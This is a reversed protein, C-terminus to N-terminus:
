DTPPPDAAPIVPLLIHSPYRADHFIRQKAPVYGTESENHGGTNLNRSYTPFAASAVEVRLRHKEPITIATHRLDLHYEYVEGRVLPEPKSMSNRFRARIKGQTLVTLKGESDVEILRVFWDTDAASSEAYLVASIPGAFTYPERFRSSEYVLIDRRSRTVKAHYGERAEKLEETSRGGTGDTGSEEDGPFVTPDPTPTGPDYTYTDPRAKKPPAARTLWGDGRSTNARGRSSLYWAEYRTERLPYADGRMWRNSGMVFVNVPPENPVGNEVGKLWHDLWRLQARQLDIVAEPGFDRDGYRRSGAGAYGWPGLILRQHPHGHSAMRLYNLKTGMGDMDFWGSQHFVPINVDKMRDLVSARKWYDDDTPHAIWDRWSRNKKGLVTKDLEIVPLERLLRHYDKQEIRQYAAGSLDASAETELVDAWWIAGTLAFVGHDYPFAYFPDPPSVNPIITALHPPCQGAALWQTWAQYSAGIMGVKGTSWPQGALWEITDYGDEAEHVIPVWVGDSGFRGRCDQVAVAYGRRAFYRAPLEYMEKKSATRVLIVPARDIGKPRYIDTALAIGDRTLVRVGPETVVARDPASLSPDSEPARRLLEYGERVYASHQSPVDALYIKGARDAWLVLDFGALSFRYRNFSRDRGSITREVTDLFELSAETTTKPLAYVAFKQDGLASRDYKRVVQSLLAPAWNEWLVVGPELSVTETGQSCDVRCIGGDRVVSVAGLPSDLSIESWPGDGTPLIKMRSSASQGGLTLTRENEFTGDASWKFQITVIREENKYVLFRGTDSFGSLPTPAATPAGPDAPPPPPDLAWGTQGALGVSFWAVLTASGIRYRTRM